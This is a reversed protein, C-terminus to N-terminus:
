GDGAKLPVLGLGARMHRWTWNGRSAENMTAVVRGTSKREDKASRMLDRYTM